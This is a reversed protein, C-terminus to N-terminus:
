SRVVRTGAALDGLRAQKRGTALVTVFGVLYFLFGDVARLATRGAIAGAGPRGGDERVVRVGLLAKGVTQGRGAELGFYYLFGVLLFLVFPGGSLNASVRGGEASSQGFAASFVVFVVALLLLDLLAAGIRRGLVDDNGPQVPPEPSTM